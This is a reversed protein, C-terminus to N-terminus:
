DEEGGWFQVCRRQGFSDRGDFTKKKEKWGCSRGGGRIRRKGEGKGGGGRGGKGGGEGITKPTTFVSKDEDTTRQSIRVYGKRRTEGGERLGEM